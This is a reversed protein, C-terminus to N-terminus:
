LRIRQFGYHEFNIIAKDLFDKEDAAHDGVDNLALRAEKWKEDSDKGKERQFHLDKFMNNFKVRLSYREMEM